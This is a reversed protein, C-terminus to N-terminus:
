HPSAGQKASPTHISSELEAYLTQGIWECVEEVTDYTLITARPYSKLLGIVFRSPSKSSEYVALIRKNNQMAFVIEAGVGLSPEGLYAIIADSQLLQEMDKTLVVIDPLDAQVQPDTNQHPLYPEWKARESALAFAEYLQRSKSLDRAGM